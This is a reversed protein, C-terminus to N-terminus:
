VRFTFLAPVHDSYNNNEIMVKWEDGAIGSASYYCHDIQSQETKGESDTFYNGNESLTFGDYEKNADMPESGIDIGATMYSGNILELADTRALKIGANAYANMAESGVLANYDGAAIVPVNYREELMRIQAILM